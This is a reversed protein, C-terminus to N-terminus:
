QDAGQAQAQRGPFEAARTGDNRAEIAKVTKGPAKGRARKGITGIVITLVRGKLNKGERVVVADVSTTGNPERTLTPGTAQSCALNLHGPPTAAVASCCSHRNRGLPLV